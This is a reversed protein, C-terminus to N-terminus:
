ALAAIFEEEREALRELLVPLAARQNTASAQQLQGYIQSEEWRIAAAAPLKERLFLASAQCRQGSVRWSFYPLPGLGIEPWAQLDGALTRMTIPGYFATPGGPFLEEAEWAFNERARALTKEWIEGETPPQGQEGIKWLCSFEADSTQGTAAIFLWM